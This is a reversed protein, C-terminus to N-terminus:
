VAVAQYYSRRNHLTHIIRKEKELKGLYKFTENPHLELAISIDEMTCPRRAILNIINEENDIFHAGGKSPITTAIIEAGTGLKKKISHLQIGNLPTVYDEPAPRVVTNLQVREPKIEEITECMKQVEGCDDNVARCFLIELWIQGSFVKRFDILGNIVQDIALQPDPRNTYKFINPSVADLSPLVVDAELLDKRVEDMFLLSSNTLVAVPISTISKIHRIIEGLKTNLTPEGSGSITVYDPPSELLTLHEELQNLILDGSIYERRDTTRNTTKGLECYICDYSCTKFPILDVGLSMGLRRSPVPGFINKM